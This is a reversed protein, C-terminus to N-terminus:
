PHFAARSVRDVTANDMDAPVLPACTPSETGHAGVLGMALILVPVLFALM